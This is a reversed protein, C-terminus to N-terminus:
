QPTPTACITGCGGPCEGPCHYVEDEGCAPPTCMPQPWVTADDRDSRPIIERRIDEFLVFGAVAGCCLASALLVLVVVLVMKRTKAKGM